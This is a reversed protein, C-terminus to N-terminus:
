RDVISLKRVSSEGARTEFRLFYINKSLGSLDLRGSGSEPPLAKTRVTRGTMDRVEVRVFNRGSPDNWRVPGSSPNPYLELQDAGGEDKREEVGVETELCRLALYANLRGAGMSDVYAPNIHDINEAGEKLCHRMEAPTAWSRYSKMLGAVGAVMPCAMSTGSLTDYSSGATDGVWLTSYIGGGPAVLDLWTGYQSFSSMTDGKGVSGVAFVEEMGAPWLTDSNGNNGAAAVLFISDKHAQELMNIMTSDKNGGGFSMSIIDANAQIAYDIGEAAAGVGIGTSSARIPIISSNFGVSAIGTGNDTVSSAIGSTHTGHTYAQPYIDYIFSTSDPPAPDNDGNAADWGRYDDVYGNGDNDVSDGPIEDLNHKMAGELDPHSYHVADDVIAITANSDGKTLEWAAPAEISDLYWEQRSHVDNPEYFTEYRPVQQAYNVYELERLEGLLEQTKEAGTADFEMKYIHQISKAETRFPCHIRRVEYPDLLDRIAPMGDLISAEDERRDYSSLEVDSGPSIKFFLEGAVKDPLDEGEDTAEKQLKQSYLSSSLILAILLIFTRM